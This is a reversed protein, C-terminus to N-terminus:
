RRLYDFYKGQYTDKDMMAQEIAQIIQIKPLGWNGYAGEHPPDSVLRQIVIGPDLHELFLVTREVFDNLGLLQYRGSQVRRDLETGEVVYLSHLKVGEVGLASLIRASEVIDEETDQPLDTIMHAVVEIGRKRARLVADIFDALTHGRNLDVLTSLKTSQLGLEILPDARDKYSAILDLKEEEVCDPRTAIDLIVIRPDIFLRDYISRLKEVSGYTNTYSQLYVAFCIDKGYRNQTRNIMDRIQDEYAVDPEAAAFGSGTPDCFICGTPEDGKIRNPCGLGTSVPLRQVRKKYRKKWYASLANYRKL